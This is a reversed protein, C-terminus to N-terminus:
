SAHAKLFAEFEGVPLPRSFLYGQGYACDLDCLLQRQVANEIGEAVVQLDLEQCMALIARILARDREQEVMDRVFTRDVKVADLPFNKLYSLSSYGTGFDDLYIRFGLARVERLWDTVAELDTAFVSETVELVLAAPELGLDRTVKLLWNPAVGDPIQRTSINVSAYLSWGQRRWHALQRCATEIVWNGLDRILGSSEAIPIFIDPRIFGQESHHWRLLCEFGLPQGNQLNVIPQYHLSVEQRILGQKLDRELRHRAILERGMADTFFCIQRGGQEKARSLAITANRLIVEVDDGDDPFVALGISVGIDLNGSPLEFPQTLRELVRSALRETATTEVQDVLVVVFEDGGIRAATDIDRIEAMLRQAIQQLLLDGTNYGFTENVQKFRDLGICLLSLRHGQHRHGKFALDLRELLLSRNALGTLADYNGHQRIEQETLHRRAVNSFQAVYGTIEGEDNRITTIMDWQPHISGDKYRNWVEGEWYGLNLLTYWFHSYFEPPHHDSKLLRPTQGIAEEPTYGTIRTFAPNVRQIVGNADTLIIGENSVEFLAAAEQLQANQARLAQQLASLRLHTTVRALVEDVQFPKSIYDVGGAAFARVKDEADRLASIFMVPVDRTRPDAKLKACVAYGDLGPMMIDLLVLDPVEAQIARLALEGSPLPRVEYGEASLMRKLVNLNELKDDVILISASPKTSM